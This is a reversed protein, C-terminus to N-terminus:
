KDDANEFTAVYETLSNHIKTPTGKYESQFVEGSKTQWIVIGDMHTEEIAYYAENINPNKKRQAITVSVVDLEAEASFGTLEHGGCSVAGYQQLYDKYDDAFKLGLKKEAEKIQEESAGKEYYFDKKHSFEEILRSM